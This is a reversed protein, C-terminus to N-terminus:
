GPPAAQDAGGGEGGPAVIGVPVAGDPVPVKAPDGTGIHIEAENGRYNDTYLQRTEQLEGNKFTDLYVVATYKQRAEIMQKQYGKPIAPDNVYIPNVRPEGTEVESRPVYTVGEPLPKGYISVTIERKRKEIQKHYVFIYIPAGTDNEFVLDIGSTDVTADLGLPVYSSPISHKKRGGEPIKINGRLLAGYLTTSVQCIGGGAQRTYEKGGSIGNAEKWGGELTRPGVITNFSFREGVQLVYQNIIGAAKDINFCRNQVIEDSGSQAYTTSFTSIRKTNEMIADITSTPEIVDYVPDVNGQYKHFTILEIIADATKEINLARGNQGPEPVFEARLDDTLTPIIKPEVAPKGAEKAINELKSILTARDPTFSLTFNKGQEELLQKDEANESFTGERGYALAENMVADMDATLRLDAATISWSQEGGALVISIEALRANIAKQVLPQAEEVPMGGVEVGEITIGKLFKKGSQLYAFASDGEPVGSQNNLFFIAAIVLLLAVFAGLAIRMLKQSKNQKTKRTKGKGGSGKGGSGKNGSSTTSGSKKVGSRSVSSTASKATRSRPQASLTSGSRGKNAARMASSEYAPREVSTYRVSGSGAAGAQRPTIRSNPNAAPVAPASQNRMYQPLEPGTKGTARNPRPNREM